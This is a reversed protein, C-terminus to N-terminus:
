GFTFSYARVGSTGFELRLEHRAPSGHLDIVSYLRASDMALRSHRTDAGAVDDPVVRGDLLVTAFAGDEQPALVVYVREAYFGLALTAPGDEQVYEPQLTWTGSLGVSGASLTEPLTYMVPAGIRGSQPSALARLHNAGLYTEPTIHFDRPTVDPVETWPGAPAHGAETLLTRIAAETTAYDGEGVHIYQTTGTADILYVEPWHLNQYANWTSIQNDLAVPFTLHQRQVAAAVNGSDREFAFEPTHIGVVVFGDPAYRQFWAELHPLERVCNVCSYTWFDILVVRGRLAQVTLPPSNMWDTLDVFPTAPGYNQLRPLSEPTRLQQGRLRGLQEIVVPQQEISQLASTWSDAQAAWLQADQDVGSLLALGTAVLLGGSAIPIAPAVPRLRRVLSRAGIGVATLPLAIGTAYAAAVGLLGATVHSTAALTAVTTLVPGACPACVLGSSVGVVLGSTFGGGRPTASQPLLQRGRELALEMRVRLPAILLSVGMAIIVAIALWRLWAGPVGVVAILSALLAASFTFSAIFGLGVGFPRRRDGSVGASLVIPLVPLICPSLVTLVGSVFAVGLLLLM